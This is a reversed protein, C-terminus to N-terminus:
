MCILSRLWIVHRCINRCFHKFILIWPGSVCNIDLLLIKFKFFMYVLFGLLKIEWCCSFYTKNEKENSFFAFNLHILDQFMYIFFSFPCFYCCFINRYFSQWLCFWFPKRKLYVHYLFILYILITTYHLLIIADM